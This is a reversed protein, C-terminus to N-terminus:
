GPAVAGAGVEWGKECASIAASFGIVNPAIGRERVVNLLSLAREWKGGMECASFACRPAVLAPEHGWVDCTRGRM